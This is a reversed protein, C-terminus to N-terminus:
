WLSMITEVHDEMMQRRFAINEVMADKFYQIRNEEYSDRLRELLSINIEELFTILAVAEFRDKIVYDRGTDMFQQEQPAIVECHLWVHITKNICDVNYMYHWYKGNLVDLTKIVDENDKKAEIKKLFTQKSKIVANIASVSQTIIM